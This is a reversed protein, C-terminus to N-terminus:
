LFGRSTKLRSAHALFLVTTSALMLATALFLLAALKRPSALRDWWFLWIQGGDSLRSAYERAPLWHYMGPDNNDEYMAWGNSSYDFHGTNVLHHINNGYPTRTITNAVRYGKKVLSELILPDSGLYNSYKEGPVTKALISALKPPGYGGPARKAALWLASGKGNAQKGTHEDKGPTELGPVGQTMGAAIVSSIV